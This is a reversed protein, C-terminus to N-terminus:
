PRWGAAARFRRNAGAVLPLVRAITEERDRWKDRRPASVVSSSPSLEETVARHLVADFTLGAFDCIAQTSSVPDDILNDYDVPLWRTSPVHALDDLALEICSAWQFAVVEELTAGIMRRWDPPLVMCWQPRDWGPLDCWPEDQKFQWFGPAEWAELLSHLTQRPERYLVVYQPDDFLSELFPIRIINRPTKELLRVARSGHPRHGSRDVTQAAFGSLITQRVEEDVDAQTLRNSEHGRQDARLRDLAELVEHSEGRISWLGPAQQLIEYLLTSGSRPMSLIVLPSSGIGAM